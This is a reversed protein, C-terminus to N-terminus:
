RAGNVQPRPRVIEDRFLDLAIMGADHADSLSRFPVISHRVAIHDADERVIKWGYTKSGLKLAGVVLRYDHRFADGAIPPSRQLQSDPVRL